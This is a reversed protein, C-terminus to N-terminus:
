RTGRQSGPVYWERVFRRTKESIRYGAHYLQGIRYLENIADERRNKIVGLSIVIERATLSSEGIVWNFIAAEALAHPSDSNWMGESNMTTMKATKAGGVPCNM